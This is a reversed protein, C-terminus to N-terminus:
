LSGTEGKAGAPAALYWARALAWPQREVQVGAPAPTGPRIVVAAPAVGFRQVFAAAARAWQAAPDDTKGVTWVYFVGGPDSM